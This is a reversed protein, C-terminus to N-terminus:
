VARVDACTSLGPCGVRASYWPHTPLLSSVPNVSPPRKSFHLGMRVPPHCVHWPLVTKPSSNTTPSRWLGEGEQRLSTELGQFVSNEGKSLEVEGPGQARHFSVGGPGLPPHGAM